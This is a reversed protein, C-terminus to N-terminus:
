RDGDATSGTQEECGSRSARALTRAHPVPPHEPDVKARAEGDSGHSNTVLSGLDDLDVAHPAHGGDDEDVVGVLDDDTAVRLVQQVRARIGHEPADLSAEAVDRRDDDVTSGALHWRKDGLDERRTVRPGDLVDSALRAANAEGM